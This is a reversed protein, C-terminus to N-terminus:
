KNNIHIYLNCIFKTSNASLVCIISWISEKTYHLKLLDRVEELYGGDGLTKPANEEKDTEFRYESMFKRQDKCELRPVHDSVNQVWLEYQALINGFSYKEVFSQSSSVIM